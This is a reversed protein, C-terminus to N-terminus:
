MESGTIFYNGKYRHQPLMYGENIYFLSIKVTCFSIVFVQSKEATFLAIYKGACVGGLAWLVLRLLQYVTNSKIVRRELMM